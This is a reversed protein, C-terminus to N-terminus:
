GERVFLWNVDKPFYDNWKDSDIKSLIDERSLQENNKGHNQMIGNLFLIFWICAMRALNRAEYLHKIRTSEKWTRGHVLECRIGYLQRFLEKVGKKEHYFTGLIKELRTPVIETIRKDKTPKEGLLAEITTIHWLLQETSRSVDDIFFGKLLFSFATNIFPWIRFIDDNIQDNIYDTFLRFNDTKVEDLKFRVTPKFGCNTCVRRDDEDVEYEAYITIGLHNNKPARKPYILYYDDLIAIFPLTFGPSVAKQCSSNWNYLSLTALVLNPVSKYSPNDQIIFDDAACDIYDNGSFEYFVRSKLLNDTITASNTVDVFWLMSLMDVNWIAWPYFIENINNQVIDSLEENSFKRINFTKFDISEVGTFDVFHLPVLYRINVQRKMFCDHYLQFYNDIDFIDNNILKIYIESRRFFNQVVNIWFTDIDKFISNFEIKRGEFICESYADATACVLTKFIPMAELKDVAEIIRDKKSKLRYLKKNQSKERLILNNQATLVYKKFIEKLTTKNSM